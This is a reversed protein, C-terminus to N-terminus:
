SGPHEELKGELREFLTFADATAGAFGGIVKEGIKRTKRVNPKLISSGLTVQGDALLVVENGKRVCIVTTSKTKSTQDFDVHFSEYTSYWRQQLATHRTTTSSLQRGEYPGSSTWCHSTNSSAIAHYIGEENRIFAHGQNLLRAKTAVCRLTGMVDLVNEDDKKVVVLLDASDM